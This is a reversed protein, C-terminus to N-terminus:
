VFADSLGSSLAVLTVVRVECLAHLGPWHHAAPEAKLQEAPVKLVACPPASGVAGRKM